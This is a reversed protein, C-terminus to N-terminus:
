GPNSVVPIWNGGGASAVWLKATGSAQDHYYILEDSFNPAEIPPDENVRRIATSVIASHSTKPYIDPPQVGSPTQTM